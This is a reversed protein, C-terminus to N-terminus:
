AAAKTAGALQDFDGNLKWRNGVPSMRAGNLEEPEIGDIADCRAQYHRILLDVARVFRADLRAALDTLAQAEITLVRKALELSM